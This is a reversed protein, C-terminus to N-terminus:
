KVRKFFFNTGGSNERAWSTASVLEWGQAGLENLQAEGADNIYKYEWVTRSPRQQQSYGAWGAICLLIIISIALHVKTRV